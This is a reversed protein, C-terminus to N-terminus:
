MTISAQYFMKYETDSLRLAVEEPFHLISKLSAFEEYSSDDTPTGELDKDSALGTSGGSPGPRSGDRM